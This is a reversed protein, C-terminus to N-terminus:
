KPSHQVVEKYARQGEKIAGLNALRRGRWGRNDGQQPEMKFYANNM